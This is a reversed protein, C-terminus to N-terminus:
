SLFLYIIKSLNNMLLYLSLNQSLEADISLHSHPFDYLTNTPFKFSNFIPHNLIKDISIKSYQDKNLMSLILNRSSPSIIREFPVPNKTCTSNFLENVNMIQFPCKEEFLYFMCVGLSWIDTAKGIIDEDSDMMEPLLFAPSCLQTTKQILGETYRHSYNSSKKTIKAMRFYAIKVTEDKFQLINKPRLDRHIVHHYHLYHIGKIVQYMYKLLEEENSIKGAIQHLNGIIQM